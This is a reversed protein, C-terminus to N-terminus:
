RNGLKGELGQLAAWRPDREEAQCRCQVENRNGGCVPCLGACEPRCLCHMPVNLQLQELVISAPDLDVGDIHMVSLDREELEHEEAEPREEPYSYILREVPESVEETFEDLCRDCLLRQEYRLTGRLYFAPDTFTIEGQWEIPGLGVLQQSALAGPAIELTERWEFPQDRVRDLQIM